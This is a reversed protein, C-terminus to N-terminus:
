ALACHLWLLCNTNCNVCTMSKLDVVIPSISVLCYSYTKWSRSEKTFWNYIVLILYRMIDIEALSYM